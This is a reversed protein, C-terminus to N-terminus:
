VERVWKGCKPYSIKFKRNQFKKKQALSTALCKLTTVLADSADFIEESDSDRDM